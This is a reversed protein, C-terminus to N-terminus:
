SIHKQWVKLHVIVSLLNALYKHLFPNINFKSLSTLKETNKIHNISIRGSTKAKNLIEQREQKNM